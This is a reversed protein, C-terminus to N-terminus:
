FILVYLYILQCFKIGPSSPPCAQLLRLAAGERYYAKALDQGLRKCAKADTLASEGQGLHFWCDSRGSFLTGDTPDSSIALTYADRAAAFDKRDFAEDGKAKADAAKKKAEPSVEPLDKKPRNNAQRGAETM